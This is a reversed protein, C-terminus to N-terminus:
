GTRGRVLGVIWLLVIAGIAAVILSWWFGGEGMGLLNNFILGGVFAGIVGVVLNTLLGHDRGLVKEAIWGAILGIVLFVILSM